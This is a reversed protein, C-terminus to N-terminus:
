EVAVLRPHEVGPSSELASMLQTMPGPMGSIDLTITVSAKGHIPLSQTITLVSGGQDSIHALVSSLIGPEHSLMVSLVAKRGTAMESPELIYDKYKYYTSRSIGVKKVAQSVERVAGSELLRRVELVKDYYDPLISKHIILYNDM